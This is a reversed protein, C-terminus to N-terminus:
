PTAKNITLEQGTLAFFLNQLQHVYQCSEFPLKTDFVEVSLLEKNDHSKFNIWICDWANTEFGSLPIMIQGYSNDIGGFKLLWEETLPIPKTQQLGADILYDNQVELHVRDETVGKVFLLETDWTEHYVINGIRLEEAKM